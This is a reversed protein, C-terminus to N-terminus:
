LIFSIIFIIYYIIDFIYYIIYLSSPTLETSSVGKVSYSWWKTLLFFYPPDTVVPAVGDLKKALINKVVNNETAQLYRSLIEKERVIPKCKTLTHEHASLPKFFTTQSINVFYLTWAKFEPKLAVFLHMSINNLAVLFSM